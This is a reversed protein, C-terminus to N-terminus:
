DLDEICARLSALELVLRSTGLLAAPNAFCKAVPSTTAAQYVRWLEYRDGEKLAKEFEKQSWEFRGDTGTTSKVEIWRVRGDEGVSRIDHDAGPHAQSTWTLLDEPREHGMARVRELEMLYVLEEGRRGIDRDREVDAAGRPTWGSSSGGSWGVPAGRPQIQQESAPAVYMTVEDLDPLTFPPPESPPPATPPPITPTASASRTGRRSSSVEEPDRPARRTTDPGQMVQRLNEERVDAVGGDELDLQEDQDDSWGRMDVGMRELCVRMDETTRCLVLRFFATSLARAQAANSAGAIEALSQAVLEQFDLETRPRVLGIVGEQLATEVPVRVAQGSVRYERSIADLFEIGTVGEMRRQLEALEVPHFELTTHRQRVALEHLARSFLPSRLTKLLLDRHQPKFWVPPLTPAGFVATGAGAISTLPRIGLSLFFKKSRENLKVIGIASGAAALADALAPYDDEVLFGAQLDYVSFLCGERDLLCCANEDLYEPLGVNGRQRYGSVSRLLSSPSTVLPSSTM